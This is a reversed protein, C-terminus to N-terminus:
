FNIRYSLLPIFELQYRTNVADLLRDYYTYATNQQGTVNQIDLSLMSSWHLRNKQFYLRIDTRFYAPLQQTFGTDYDFVTTRVARSNDLLIPAARLGGNYQIRVNFGFRNFQGKRDLGSWEKGLTLTAAYDHAFRTKVWDGNTNEYRADFISGSLVYWWNGTAFQQLSAEVGRTRGRTTGPTALQMLELQNIESRAAQGTFASLQQQYVQLTLKHDAQLLYTWFLSAQQAKRPRFVPTYPSPAQTSVGYEAGLINKASALYSVSLRPEFYTKQEKENAWFSTRAGLQLLVKRVQFRWDLYPSVQYIDSSIDLLGELLLPFERAVRQDLRLMEVGLTLSGFPLLKRRYSIQLSTREQRLNDWERAPLDAALALRETRLGSWAGALRWLGKEQHPRTWSFGVTAMESSFDITNYLDKETGWETTDTPPLFVNSSKGLLGFVALRSGAAGPVLFKFSLDQFRIDENGFQAGLDTLLGTFSYRYNILYSAGGARFPGEAALDIGILGAQLTYEAKENNGTRLRMDLLGGTANGLAASYTGLYFRGEELLQSSIANVGGGSLSSRDSFTGANATHNPNVIELGELRWNLGLPSQGRIILHNAQDDAGVVGPYAQALRAPDNFTAPFRLTEEQTLRLLNPSVSVQATRSGKVTITTLSTPAEELEIDLVVEKGASVLVEQLELQQYGLYAVQLQYRGPDLDSFRFRGLSDTDAGRGLNKLLVTAGVLPQGNDADTISGRLTAQASLTTLVFLLSLTLCFQQM